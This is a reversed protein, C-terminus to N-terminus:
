ENLFGKRVNEPVNRLIIRKKDEKTFGVLQNVYMLNGSQEYYRSNYIKATKNSYEPGALKSNNFFNGVLEIKDAAISATGKATLMNLLYNHGLKIGVKWQKSVLRTLLYLTGNYEYVGTPKQLYDPDTHHLTKNTGNHLDGLTPYSVFCYGKGTEDMRYLYVWGKGPMHCFSKCFKRKNCAIGSERELM